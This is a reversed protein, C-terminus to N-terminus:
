GGAPRFGTPLRWHPNIGSVGDLRYATDDATLRLLRGSATMAQVYNGHRGRTRKGNEEFLALRTIGATKKTPASNGDSWGIAFGDPRSSPYPMPDFSGKVGLNATEAVLIADDPSEVLTTLTGGDPIYMGYSSAIEGGGASESRVNESPDSSPCTFSARKTMFAAADSAWTYPLGTDGLSPKGDPDLRALPPYRNDHEGAYLNVAEYVAQLDVICRHRESNGELVKYIPFAFIAIVVLAIGWIRLDKATIYQGGGSADGEVANPDYRGTDSM